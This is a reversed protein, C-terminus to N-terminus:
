IDKELFINVTRYQTRPKLPVGYIELEIFLTSELNYQKYLASEGFNRLSRHYM